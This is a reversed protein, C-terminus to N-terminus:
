FANALMNYRLWGRITGTVQEGSATTVTLALISDSVVYGFSVSGAVGDNYSSNLGTGVGNSACYRAVQAGVTTGNGNGQGTDGLECATAALNELDIYWDHIEAGLPIRCLKIVDAGSLTVATLTVLFAKCV